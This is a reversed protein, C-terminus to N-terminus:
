FESNKFYYLRERISKSYICFSSSVSFGAGSALHAKADKSFLRLTCKNGFIICSSIYNSCCVVLFSKATGNINWIGCMSWMSVCKCLRKGLSNFCGGCQQCRFDGLAVEGRLAAGPVRLECGGAINYCFSGSVERVAREFFVVVECSQQACQM